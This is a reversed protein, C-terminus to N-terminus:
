TVTVYCNYQFCAVLVKDETLGLFSGVAEITLVARDDLTPALGRQKLRM